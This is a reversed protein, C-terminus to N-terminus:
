YDVHRTLKGTRERDVLNLFQSMIAAAVDDNSFIEGPKAEDEWCLERAFNLKPRYVKEGIPLPYNLYMMQEQPLYIKASYETAKLTVDDIVNAYHQTWTIDVSVAPYRLICRLRDSVAEIQLSTESRIQQLSEKLKTFLEFITGHASKQIWQQDRFLRNQDEYLQGEREVRKALAVPSPKGITGGEDQVRLKIAGVAQDAGYRDLDFRIHTQPLWVPLTSDADLTIFVLSNWGRNLCRDKIATEEIRTWNTQGWPSRFLVVVVRAELFPSRMSELGDTGALEEQRRPFFFVSLGLELKSSIESAVAEDKALFSIAVDYKLNEEM